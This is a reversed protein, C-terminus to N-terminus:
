GIPYGYSFDDEGQRAIQGFGSKYRDLQFKLGPTDFKENDSLAVTPFDSDPEGECFLFTKYGFAPVDTAPFLVTTKMHGWEAMSNPSRYAVMTPAQRGDEGRAVIRGPELDIDWLDVQVMETRAFPLPNYIVIPHYRRGGTSAQSIGSLMAGLGVGGEFIRNARGADIDDLEQYAEPEDPLLSATDIDAALTKGAERKIAGTIAGTEQFLGLAHERTAAIGSGPLIDHFQNFLVNLWAERLLSDRGGLGTAVVMGEAETCFNEGFRNARKIASQSTYCGTFEFNLEHDLTPVTVGGDIEAEIAEFYRRSTSFEVTPYCPFTAALRIWEIENVTPGGGHNGMGFVNLWQSLGTEKVFPVLPLAFNEGINVYSNYWTTERNVLVRSGDVGQWWFVPPREEGVREHHHGGGTRCSYYYKVAGQVLIGPITNAHGFTDPEWDVPVDEPSLGFREQFYRRTYMLHRALSEGSALNKDGEVWHAATVEWRGAKVQARIREFTEPHYKEMLAYVSAQSQSFTLDPYRDMLNLVSEFTDHTQSVTEPWSWMWNMDIHGHGVVHIKFGKAVAAADSLRAEIEAVWADTEGSPGQRYLDGAADIGDKLEPRIEALKEAFELQTHARKLLATFDGSLNRKHRDYVRALSPTAM